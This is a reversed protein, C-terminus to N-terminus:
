WGDRAQWAASAERFAEPTDTNAVVGPDPVAIRRVQPGFEPLLSRIPADSRLDLLDRRLTSRWLVPHGGREEFTPIWWVSLLDDRRAGLLTDVTAAAVFPHDVPWFLVDRDDPITLLGDQMSATRGERWRDAEVVAVPRDRLEHAIPGRHAGVVVTVPDLERELLLDVIRHVATTEGVPALAKPFGGFRSSEGGSLVLAATTM